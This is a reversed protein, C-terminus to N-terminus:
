RVQWPQRRRTQRTAAGRSPRGRERRLLLLGGAAMGNLTAFSAFALQYSGTADHVAAAFIPGLAGGPLLVLIMTGYIEAMYREGFCYNIVLPYVVDRAATAFGYCAIFVWIVRSDPLWLLVVSSIALLLYDIFISAREPIRDAIAGLLIKSFLGIGIATSFYYTADALSMGQDTLFLVFHELMGIFYFFFSFLTATLVWFSRTRLAQRLNLDSDSDPEPAGSREGELAESAPEILPPRRDRVLWVAAPVIVIFAGVGMQFLADRWGSREAVGVAIPVLLWGALNSGTYVIGLALGRRRRVWQTVVQGVTLDGVGALALGLLLVVGYLHWLTQIQSFLLFCAGVGLSSLILIPRAGFRVTLVGILPSVAAIVFLQPARAGSYQARTWDFEGIIDRALPGFVYGYGLGLQCVLCGLIV